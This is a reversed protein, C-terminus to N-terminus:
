ATTPDNFIIKANKFLNNEKVERYYDKALIQSKSILEMNNEKLIALLEKSNMFYDKVKIFLNFDKNKRKLKSYIFRIADIIYINYAFDISFNIYFDYNNKTAVEFYGLLKTEDDNYFVYKEFNNSFQYNERSFLFKNFSNINENYFGRIENVQNKKFPKLTMYQTANLCSIKYLYEFGCARFNMENKFINLLDAQREDVVVYFSNAGQARYKSIVYNVLQKSVDSSYEELILKTIKFRTHSKSDKDLTVLASKKNDVLAIYSENAFKLRLPLLHNIFCMTHKIFNFGCSTFVINKIEVM